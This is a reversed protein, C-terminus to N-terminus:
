KKAGPTDVMQNIRSYVENKLSEMCTDFEPIIQSMNGGNIEMGDQLPFVQVFKALM